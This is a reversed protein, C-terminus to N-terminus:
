ETVSYDFPSPECIKDVLTDFDTENIDEPLGMEVFYRAISVLVAEEPETMTLTRTWEPNSKKMDRNYERQIVYPYLTIM